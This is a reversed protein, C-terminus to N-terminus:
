IIILIDEKDKCNSNELFHTYDIIMVNEHEDQFSFYGKYEKPEKYKYYYKTKFKDAVSKYSFYHCVITAGGDGGSNWLARDVANFTHELLIVDDESFKM